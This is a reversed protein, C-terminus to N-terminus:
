KKRPKFNVEKVVEEFKTYQEPSLTKKIVAKSMMRMMSLNKLLM